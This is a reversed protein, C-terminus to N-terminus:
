YSTPQDSTLCYKLYTIAKGKSYFLRHPNYSNPIVNCDVLSFSEDGWKTEYNVFYGMGRHLYPKGTLKREQIFSNAGLATIHYVTQGNRLSKVTPSNKAM